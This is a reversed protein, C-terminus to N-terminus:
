IQIGLLLLRQKVQEALISIFRSNSPKSCLVFGGSRGFIRNLTDIDGEAWLRDIMYRFRSEIRRWTLEYKLALQPYVTKTMPQSGYVVWMKVADKLVDYYKTNTPVQLETFIQSIHYDVLTDTSKSPEDRLGGGQLKLGNLRDIERLLTKIEVPQYLVCHAGADSLAKRKEPDDTRMIIIVGPQKIDSSQNLARLVSLADHSKMRDEMVVIDPQIRRIEEWLLAGNPSTLTVHFGLETLYFCYTLGYEPLDNAIIINAPSAM